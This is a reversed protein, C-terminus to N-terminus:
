YYDSNQIVKVFILISFIVNLLVLHATRLLFMLM